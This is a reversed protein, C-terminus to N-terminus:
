SGDGEVWDYLDAFGSADAIQDWEVDTDAPTPQFVFFAAIVAMAAVGGISWWPRSARTDNAPAAKEAAALIRSSLSSRAAPAPNQDLFTEFDSM